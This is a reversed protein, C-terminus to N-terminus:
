ARDLKGVRDLFEDHTSKRDDPLAAVAGRRRAGPTMGFSQRFVRNFHSM